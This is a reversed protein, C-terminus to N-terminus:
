VTRMNGGQASQCQRLWCLIHCLCPLVPCKVTRTLMILRCQIIVHIIVIYFYNIKVIGIMRRLEVSSKSSPHLLHIITGERGEIFPFSIQTLHAGAIHHYMQRGGSTVKVAPPQTSCEFIGM